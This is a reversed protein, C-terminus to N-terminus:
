SEVMRLFPVLPKENHQYESLRQDRHKQSILDMAWKTLESDSPEEDTLHGERYAIKIIDALEKISFQDM